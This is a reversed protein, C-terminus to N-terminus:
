RPNRSRAFRSCTRLLAVPASRPGSRAEDGIVLYRQPTVVGPPRLVTRRKEVPTGVARALEPHDAPFTLVATPPLLMKSWYGSLHSETFANGNGCSPKLYPQSVNGNPM